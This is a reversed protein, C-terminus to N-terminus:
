VKVITDRFLTRWTPCTWVADIMAAMQILEQPMPDPAPHAQPLLPFFNNMNNRSLADALSNHRGPLYSPTHIFPYHAAHPSIWPWKNLRQRHSSGCGPQWRLLHCPRSNPTSDLPGHRSYPTSGSPGPRSYPTTRDVQHMRRRKWCQSKELATLLRAEDKESLETKRKMIAREAAMTSKHEDIDTLKEELRRLEDQIEPLISKYHNM